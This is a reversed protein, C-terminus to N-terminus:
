DPNEKLKAILFKATECALFRYGATNPHKDNYWSPVDGFLPDLENNQLRVWDADKWEYYKTYPAVIQHYNDPISSLAVFRVSMAYEGLEKLKEHYAPYIDFFELNENAALEAIAENVVKSDEESLFPIITMLIIQAEPFDRQLSAVAKKMDAPFNVMFPQRKFWDNIGYRFFIYDVSEIGKVQQDYRGSNLLSYATEGGRGLNIVEVPPMGDEGAVLQEITKEFVPKGGETTSDGILLIKIKKITSDLDTTFAGLVILTTTLAIVLQLKKM